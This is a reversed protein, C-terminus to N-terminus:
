KILIMKKAKYYKGAINIKYIYTGSALNSGNFQISHKGASLEKNLLEIVKQGLMNFVNLKVIGKKPLTFDIKTNPNFPNPYNQNLEFKNPTIEQSNIDTITNDFNLHNTPVTIDAFDTGTLITNASGEFNWKLNLNDVTFGVSSYIKFKGVAKEEKSILDSGIGSVFILKNIGDTSDYGIINIPLNALGSSNSLYELSISDNQLLNLNFTLSCQYSSLLFDTDLSKIKIEFELSKSDNQVPNTLYMLYDTQSLLTM